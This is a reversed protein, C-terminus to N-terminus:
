TFLNKIHRLPVYILPSLRSARAICRAFIIQGLSEIDIHRKGRHIRTARGLFEAATVPADTADLADGKTILTVSADGAIRRVVRHVFFDENREFLIVDGPRLMAFDWRRVFVQDGSRIWPFMDGNLVRVSASGQARIKSGITNTHVQAGSSPAQHGPAIRVPSVASAASM